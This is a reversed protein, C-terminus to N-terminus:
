STSSHYALCSLIRRERSDIAMTKESRAWPLESSAACVAVSAEAGGGGGQVFQMRALPLWDVPRPLARWPLAYYCVFPAGILLRLRHVGLTAPEPLLAELAPLAASIEYPSALPFVAEVQGSAGFRCARFGDLWVTSHSWWKVERRPRSRLWQAPNAARVGSTIRSWSLAM